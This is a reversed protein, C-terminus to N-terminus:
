KFYCLIAVGIILVALAIAKRKINQEQFFITGLGFSVIVNSRRLLSVISIPTGPESMASFYFWDAAVLFLGVAPISWRWQFPTRQMKFLRQGFIIVTFLLVLDAQFWFQVILPDIAHRQLLFKDYLASCAGLLTGAFAFFVGWNRQFHIGELKGALSFLFYGALVAGIGIAQIWSPIEGYLMMAGLLTWFPVSARLPAAISFPLERIAYYAFVWSIAIISSKIFILWFTHADVFFAFGLKGIVLLYLAFILTGFFTGLYLVPMVANNHVSQKKFLDYFALLGASILVFPIWM